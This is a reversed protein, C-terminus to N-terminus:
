EYTLFVTFLGGIPLHLFERPNANKACTFCALLLLLRAHGQSSPDSRPTKLIHWPRPLPLPRSKFFFITVSLNCAIVENVRESLVKVQSIFIYVDKDNLSM